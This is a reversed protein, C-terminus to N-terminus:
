KDYTLVDLAERVCEACVHGHMDGYDYGDLELFADFEYWVSPTVDNDRRKNCANCTYETM